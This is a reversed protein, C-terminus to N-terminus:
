VPHRGLRAFADNYTHAAFATRATRGDKERVVERRDTALIASAEAGLMAVESPSFLDPLVLYGEAGFQAIQEDTLM